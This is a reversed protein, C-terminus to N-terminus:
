PAVGPAGAVFGFPRSGDDAYHHIAVVCSHPIHVSQYDKGHRSLDRKVFLYHPSDTAIEICDLVPHRLDGDSVTGDNHGHAFISGITSRADLVVLYRM